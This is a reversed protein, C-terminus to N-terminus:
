YFIDNNPYVKCFVGLDEVGLKGNQICYLISFESNSFRLSQYYHRLSFESTKLESNETKPITGFSFSPTFFRLFSIRRPKRTKSRARFRCLKITTVYVSKFLFEWSKMGARCTFYVKVFESQHIPKCSM